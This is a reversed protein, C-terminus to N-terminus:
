REAPSFAPDTISMETVPGYRAATARIERAAGILVLVLDEPAPYITRAVRQADEFTVAALAPGYGEVYQRDLGFLELEALQRAWQPATELQGPYQGLVYRKGSELLAADIAGAKFRAYVDLALDIAQATAETRTYSVIQWAGPRTPRVLQSRAGYTLGSRVRLESNLLSTFRGGLLTNVVDIAAREPHTRAVGVNGILFYTQVSAPADVLLVRRGSAKRPEPAAPAPSPARRWGDFAQELRRRMDAADFDGVVALILRDGGFHEAYFATVDDHTLSALSRESGDVPRGYPHEAFIAGAGYIPLLSALDGDKAARILDIQRARLKELEAADLHPRQLLDALLEIMLAQDRALFEGSVTITELGAGASLVGGVSAVTDAFEYADRPGAGKELLGALLSATGAKGPPDAIAGSRVLAQFAVLPIERREMLLLTVGNDLVAREFPPVRVVPADGDAAVASMSAGTLLLAAGLGAAGKM